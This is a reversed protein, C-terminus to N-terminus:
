IIVGIDKLFPTWPFGDGPDIKRVPDIDSHRKLRLIGKGKVWETKVFEMGTEYQGKALYPLAIVKRFSRYDHTGPVLFEIGLTDKNHGAAHYAGQDDRRCRILDNNPCVLIHASLGQRWELKGNVMVQYEIERLHDVAHRIKGDDGKIYEGMAHVIIEKPNNIGSGRPLLNEIINMM